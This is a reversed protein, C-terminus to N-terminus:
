RRDVAEALLHDAKDEPSLSPDDLLEKAWEHKPDGDFDEGLLVEADVFCIVEYQSTLGYKAARDIGRRVQIRLNADSAEAMEKPFEKRLHAAGRDLFAELSLRDFAEMQEPRIRMMEM